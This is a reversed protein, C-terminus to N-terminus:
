RSVAVRRPPLSWPSEGLWRLIDPAPLPRSLYYGQAGDCGLGALQDWTTRDEVGEAIVQVGLNHGLDITSRVIVFDNKDAALNMVFSKDIKIQDVPLRRLYGLSSYGTGFDDIAIRVGSSRLRMLNDMARAPNAMVASETIEVRLRSAPVGWTALLDAIVSPLRPNHLNRMSLNVAVQLDVGSERWTRCQHLAAGLVWVSLPEILGTQEALAIFQDPPVVGHVPHDWRVLAEVGTVRGTRYSVNPQYHLVLQQEEIGTRLEGVLALRGPSHHDQEVAYVAYGSQARKAVYMAVDARRLLTEADAGHEPFLAIGMSAGVPLSNGDVLFPAELAQQLKDAGLAARTDDGATPMIVAFEDGGLRAVTDSARLVSRLRDGVLRLLVDGIHHGLTDNVEKFGDLDMVVLALGDRDREASLIAQRLRDLLLTRNPLDTLSDYLAQHQLAEEARKRETVDTIFGELALLQGQPSRVGRGQEWVWKEQGSATVIRYVLQFPQEEQLAAQVALWVRKRDDPHVIDADFVARNGILEEPRFGTLETCGDSVFAITWTRDNGYRYAMGPLNSMLTALMRQSEGLASEAQQKEARLRREQLARGVAQGLRSLRDKLLYDAAGQRMCAVAVEESIAGTVVIFPIDLRREQLHRLARLADFQPLSYDALIIDLAPHLHDLYEPESDVRQCAPEYGSRRLEHLILEADAVQDELLLVRLTTSGVAKGPM